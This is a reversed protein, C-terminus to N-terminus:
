DGASAYVVRGNPLEEAAKTITNVLRDLKGETEWLANEIECVRDLRQQAISKWKEAEAQWDRVQAELDVVRLTLREKTVLENDGLM